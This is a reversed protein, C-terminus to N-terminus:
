NLASTKESLWLREEENLSPSLLEYVQRHYGDLWEEHERGMLEKIILSKDIPVFTLTEFDCFNGYENLVRERCLLLNETRIGYRGKVYIAPENSQIMGPEIAVPNEEMRISQPGEHVALVHGVGHGTGHLYLKERSCIEGRALFDLSSGRTGMPFKARSLNIMGRLVATFDEREERGAEGICITRTTDTTGFIYHAGMDTLLMGKGVIVDENGYPSYHPMAGNAGFAVIPEFSEGLYFGSEKRFSILLEALGKETLTIGAAVSRDIHMLYKVWAIGDLLHARRFGDAEVSNKIAKLNSVYGGRSLDPMFREGNSTIQLYDGASIRDPSAIRVYSQPIRDLEDRFNVYEKIKIGQAALKVSDDESLMEKKCFLTIQDKEIISYIMPVPNCEIDGGRINCLWASDECSTIIYAFPEKCGIMKVLREHKSKSTEGSYNVDYCYLKNFQLAPRDKWVDKLPDNVLKIGAPKLAMRLSEYDNLSFLSGDLAIFDGERCRENIWEIMTTEGPFKLKKLVIGSGQLQNEAQIFYRSDTWLAAEGLTIVVTGASGDFGSIWERCKYHSQIYEGFHPDNSPIIIASLNNNRLYRRLLELKNNNMYINDILILNLKDSNIGLILVFQTIKSFNLLSM